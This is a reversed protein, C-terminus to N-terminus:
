YNTIRITGDGSRGIGAVSMLGPRAHSELYSRLADSFLDGLPRGQHHALMKAELLLTPEAM